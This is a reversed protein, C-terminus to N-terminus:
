ENSANKITVIVSTGELPMEKDLYHISINMKGEKNIITVLEKILEDGYSHSEIKSAKRIAKAKVRGIGNDDVICVLDNKHDGPDFELILNGKGEKQALGHNIANEVIPQLLLSPIKINKPEIADSVLIKYNFKHDFRAQQLNIYNTLSTIEESLPIYKNRSSKIYSRLLQSFSAFHDYAEEMQKKKIFYLGTNLSNFIFHPNLQAYISKLELELHLNKVELKLSESTNKQIIKRKTIVVVIVMISSLLGLGSLGLLVKGKTTQWWYPIINLRIKVIKTRLIDDNAQLYLVYTRDPKLKPLILENSNLSIWNDSLNEIRYSYKVIGAGYPNILDFRIAPMDQKISLSCTEDCNILKNMYWAVIKYKDSISIKNSSSFLSDNPKQVSLKGKDTDIILHRNQDLYANTVFSYNSNKHNHILYSVPFKGQKAVRTYLVGFKGVIILIEGDILIHSSKLNIGSFVEQFSFTTFNFIWLKDDTKIFLNENQQSLFIKDINHLIAPVKLKLHRNGIEAYINDRNYGIFMQHISDYIVGSYREDDLQKISFSSPSFHVNILGQGTSVVYIENKNKVVGDTATIPFYSNPGKLYTVINDKILWGMGNDAFILTSDRSWGTLKYINSIYPLKKDKTQKGNEIILTRTDRDFLYTKDNIRSIFRANRRNDSQASKFVSKRFNFLIGNSQTTIWEGWFDDNVYTLIDGKRLIDLSLLQDAWAIRSVIMDSTLKYVHKDSTLYCNNNAVNLMYLTEDEDLQIFLKKGTYIDRVEIPNVRTIGYSFPILYRGFLYVSTDTNYGYMQTLCVGNYGVKYFGNRKQLFLCYDNVHFVYGNSPLRCSYITDAREVCLYAHGQVKIDIFHIGQRNKNPYIPYFLKRDPVATITHYTDNYFYGIQSSINMPWVRGNGDELLYWVNENEIGSEKDFIKFDYGNYKVIGKDTAMWLYGNRDKLSYYVHNSPM